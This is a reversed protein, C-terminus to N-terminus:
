RSCIRLPEIMNPYTHFENLTNWREVLGSRLYLYSCSKMFQKPDVETRKALTKEFDFMQDLMPRIRQLDFKFQEFNEQVYGFRVSFPYYLTRLIFQDKESFISGVKRNIATKGFPDEGDKKFDPSSPDGWWKKGQATMEYLSEAEKINMWKSLASITQRPSEKIDELRVGISNCKHHVISDIEFLMKLVRASIQSHNNDLFPEKCWSECSQIPERVMITMRVDPALRLFNLQAYADPNHIHYFILTKKNHDNIAKDYAAHALKFFVFADLEDYFGMLRNLEASFLTKDVSLVQNRYDGVNAMGEKQGINRLMKKSITEVPITSAANFLVDYIAVFRNAMEGWGGAIIKEWNSHLFYQSLYFSPMTSVESHGDILTHLLGTGSRGLHVLAIVKEPLALDLDASDKDGAPNKITINKANALLSLAKNLSNKVHEGGLNLKYNLISKEIQAYKSNTDEPYLSRLKDGSSIQAKIARLPFFINSWAESFGPNISLSKNYAEISDELRGLEQLMIGLNNHAAAYDPKLAIAQTYSAEAEELRGLEQLTLGLYNHAEFFDPKLTIAHTYSAKAEDLRGLEHLTNGLNSHAEAYDPKLAIAQTYSAEAEDLRGLEQLTSGLNYHAAAFNPKLAIAKRLSAEAEGLRDLDKLTNGLNSHAEAFDPKVAIAQTYSAEAEGLRGLEQLTNGLTNHAEADQPALQVSKQSPVLSESFRGTQSLITGLAKWGFEHEPFRETISVALKEADDYRGSQYHQLLNNIEEEPPNINKLNQKKRKKKKKNEALKRRKESFKMGKKQASSKPDNVQSTLPIQTELVNLKEGAVGQNKAQELVQNANDFQQEKILADIYSLWFQEIEPNAELAIKFLPLATDVKNALVALVGLNHNADPHLPQSQLIARYLREAEKLKGENHAVVGQQLAQDVTIEM